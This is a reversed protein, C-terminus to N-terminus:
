FYTDKQGSQRGTGTGTRSELRLGDCAAEEDEGVAERVGKAVGYKNRTEKRGRSSARTARPSSNQAVAPRGKTSRKVLSDLTEGEERGGHKRARSPFPVDVSEESLM